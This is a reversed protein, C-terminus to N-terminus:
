QTGEVSALVREGDRTIQDAHMENMHVLARPSYASNDLGFGVHTRRIERGM